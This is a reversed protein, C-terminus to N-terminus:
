SCSLWSHCNRGVLSHAAYYPSQEKMANPDSNVTSKRFSNAGRRRPLPEGIPHRASRPRLKPIWIKGAIRSRAGGRRAQHLNQKM